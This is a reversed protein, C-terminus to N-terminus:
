VTAELLALFRAAPHWFRGSAIPSWRKGRCSMGAWDMLRAIERYSCGAAREQHMLDLLMAFTILCGLVFVLIGFVGAAWGSRKAIGAISLLLGALGLAGNFFVSIFGNPSVSIGVCCIIALV